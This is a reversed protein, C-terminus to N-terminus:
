NGNLKVKKVFWVGKKLGEVRFLCMFLTMVGNPMWAGQLQNINQPKIFWSLIRFKLLYLLHHKAQYSREM